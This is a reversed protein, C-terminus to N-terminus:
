CRNHSNRSFLSLDHVIKLMNFVNKKSVAKMRLSFFGFTRTHVELVQMNKVRVLATHYRKSRSLKYKIYMYTAVLWLGSYGRSIGLCEQEVTDCSM